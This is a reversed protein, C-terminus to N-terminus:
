ASLNCLVREVGSNGEDDEWNLQLWGSKPLIVSWQLFPNASTGTGLEGSFLILGDLDLSLKKIVNKAMASGSADYRFGTEMPHQILIRIDMKLGVKPNAPLIIRSTM